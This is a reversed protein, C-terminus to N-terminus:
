HVLYDLLVIILGLLVAGITGLVASWWPARRVIFAVASTVGLVALGVLISWDTADDVDLVGAVSLALPIGPLVVAGLLGLHHRAATRIPHRVERHLAYGALTAAYVHAIWFVVMTVVGWTLADAASTDDEDSTAMVLAMFVITGYVLEASLLRELGLRRSSEPRVVGTEGPGAETSV